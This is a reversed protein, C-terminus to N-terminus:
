LGPQMFPDLDPFAPVGTAHTSEVYCVHSRLSQWVWEGLQGFL